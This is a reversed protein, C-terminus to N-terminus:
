SKISPNTDNKNRFFEIRTTMISSICRIDNSFRDITTGVHSFYQSKVDRARRARGRADYWTVDLKQQSMLLISFVFASEVKSTKYLYSVQDKHSTGYENFLSLVFHKFIVSDRDGKTIYARSKSPTKHSLAASVPVLPKLAALLKNTPSSQIRDNSSSESFNLATMSRNQLTRGHKSVPHSAANIMLSNASGLSPNGVFSSM